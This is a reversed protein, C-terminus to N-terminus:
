SPCLSLLLTVKLAPTDTELGHVATKFTESRKEKRDIADQFAQLPLCPQLPVPPARVWPATGGRGASPPVQIWDNMEEESRPVFLVQILQQGEEKLIHMIDGKGKGPKSSWHGSSERCWSPTLSSLM